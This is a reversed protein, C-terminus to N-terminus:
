LKSIDKSTIPVLIQFASLVEEIVSARQELQWRQSAPLLFNCGDVFTAFVFHSLIPYATYSAHM